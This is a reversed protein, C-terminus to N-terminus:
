NKIMWRTFEELGEIIIHKNIIENKLSKNIDEFKEANIIHFELNLNNKLLKLKDKIKSKGIILLDIDNAKKMDEAASGFILVKNRESDEHIFSVVERILLEKQCKNLIKEKETIQIFDIILPNAYNLRYMTLRGKIQKALVQNKNAAL